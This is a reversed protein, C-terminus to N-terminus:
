ANQQTFAAPIPGSGGAVRPRPSKGYILEAPPRRNSTLRYRLLNLWALAWKKLDARIADSDYAKDALLAKPKQEPLDILDDYAKCCAAEGPTLHFAVPGGRADSLCHVKGTFRGRSRSLGRQHLGKKARQRSTPM